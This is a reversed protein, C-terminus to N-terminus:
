LKLQIRTETWSKDAMCIFWNISQNISVTYTVESVITHGIDGYYHWDTCQTTQNTERDVYMRCKHLNGDDDRPITDNVSAGEPVECHYKPWGGVGNCYVTYALFLRTM